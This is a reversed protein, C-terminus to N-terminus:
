LMSLILPYFDRMIEVESMQERAPTIFQPRYAAIIGQKDLFFSSPFGAGHNAKICAKYTMHVFNYKINHEAVLRTITSDEEPTFAVFIFRSSDKLKEFLANFADLEEMCIPSAAEWFTAFVVKHKLDANSFRSGDTKQLNFKAFSQGICAPSNLTANSFGTCCAVALALIVIINMKM